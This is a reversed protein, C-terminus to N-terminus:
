TFQMLSQTSKFYKEFKVKTSLKPQVNVAAFIVEKRRFLIGKAMETSAAVINDSLFEAM